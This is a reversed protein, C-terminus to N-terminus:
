VADEYEDYEEDDANVEYTFQDVVRDEYYVTITTTGAKKLELGYEVELCEAEGEDALIDYKTDAEWGSHCYDPYIDEWGADVIKCQIDVSNISVDAIKENSVELRFKSYKTNETSEEEDEDENDDEEKSKEEKVYELAEQDFIDREVEVSDGITDYRDNTYTSINKPVTVKFETSAGNVEVTIMATGPKKPVLALNGGPTDGTHNVVDAIEVVSPDSSEAKIWGSYNYPAIYLAVRQPYTLTYGDEKDYVPVDEEMDDGEEVLEFKQVELAVESAQLREVVEVKVCGLYYDKTYAKKKYDYPFVHVYYTGAKTFRVMQTYITQCNGTLDKIGEVYVEDDESHKFDLETDVKKDESIVYGRKKTAGCTADGIALFGGVTIEAEKETLKPACIEIYFSGVTRTKKKYTEKITVKVKGSGNTGIIQGKKTLKLKKSDGSYYSYTAKPNMYMMGTLWPKIFLKDEKTIIGRQSTYAEDYLMNKKWMCAKKVTVTFTGVSTTKKNLKQKVTIKTKGPAVGTIVGKKSVKAVKKNKSKYSYTAKKNEGTLYIRYTENIAISASNYRLKTKTAAFVAQMPSCMGCVMVMVLLFAVAKQQFSGMKKGM